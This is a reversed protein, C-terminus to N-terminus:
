LHRAKSRKVRIGADGFLASHSESSSLNPPLSLLNLDLKRPVCAEKLAELAVDLGITSHYKFCDCFIINGLTLYCDVFSMVIAVQIPLEGV